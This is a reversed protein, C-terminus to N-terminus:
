GFVAVLYQYLDGGEYSESTIWSKARDLSVDYVYMFYLIAWGYRAKPDFNADTNIKEAKDIFDQPYDKDSNWKIWQRRKEEDVPPIDEERPGYKIGRGRDSKDDVEIVDPGTIIPPMWPRRFKKEVRQTREIYLIIKDLKQGQKPKPLRRPTRSPVKIGLDMLIHEDSRNRYNNALKSDGTANVIARYRRKKDIAERRKAAASKAM